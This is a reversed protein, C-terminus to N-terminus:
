GDFYDSSVQKFYLHDLVVGFMIFWFKGPTPGSIQPIQKTKNQSKNKNKQRQFIIKNISVM